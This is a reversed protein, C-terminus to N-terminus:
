AALSPAACTGGARGCASGVWFGILMRACYFAWVMLSGDIFYVDFKEPIPGHALKPLWGLVLGLVACVAVYPVHALPRQAPSANPEDV